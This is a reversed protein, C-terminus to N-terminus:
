EIIYIDKPEDNKLRLFFSSLIKRLPVYKKNDITILDDKRFSVLKLNDHSQIKIIKNSDTYKLQLKDCIKDLEVYDIRNETFTEITAYTDNIYYYQQRINYTKNNILSNINIFPFVILILTTVIIITVVRFINVRVVLYKAM